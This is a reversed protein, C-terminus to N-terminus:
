TASARRGMIGGLIFRAGMETMDKGQEIPGELFASLLPVPAVISRRYQTDVMHQASTEMVLKFNELVRHYLDEFDRIQSVDERIQFKRNITWM